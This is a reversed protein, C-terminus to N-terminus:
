ERAVVEIETSRAWLTISQFIRSCAGHRTLLLIGRPVVWWPVVARQTMGDICVSSLDGCPKPQARRRGRTKHTWRTSADAHLSPAARLMDWSFMVTTLGLGMRAAREIAVPTAAGVMLPPEGARLPKPGIECAAIQYFRGAFQVPDPGWVARMAAIHEEFGAGRPSRPAGVARFEQAMWGQGLDILLRGGSFRDLTALRRALVVPSHFLTDLVSTGLQIRSTRAAVYSLTELPDYVTAWAEPALMTPGTGGLPIPATPRLLREFTWVAALGIREAGEAVQSITEPSAQTGSMPLAVGLTPKM